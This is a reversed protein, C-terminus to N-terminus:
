VDDAEKAGAEYGEDYGAATAKEICDWCARVRISPISRNRTAVFQSQNCLGAGCTACYIEVEVEVIPSM